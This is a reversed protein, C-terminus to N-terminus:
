FPIDSNSEGELFNPDFSGFGDEGIPQGFSEDTPPEFAPPQNYAAAQNNNNQWAPASQQRYNNNANNNNQWSNGNPSGQQQGSGLFQVTDALVDTSRRKGSGDKAEYTSTQLRGEILVARGKRLYKGCNEAQAGWVVVNVFDTRERLEGNQDKWNSNIAIGFRAYSRKNVTARVEPDNTLNGAIIVRNFGRM